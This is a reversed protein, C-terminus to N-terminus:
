HIYKYTTYINITYSKIKRESRDYFTKFLFLLFLLFIFTFMYLVIYKHEGQKNLVFLIIYNLDIVLLKGYLSYVAIFFINVNWIFYVSLLRAWIYQSVRNFNYKYIIKIQFKNEKETAVCYAAVLQAAQDRLGSM